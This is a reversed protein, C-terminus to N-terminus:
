RGTRSDVPRRLSRHADPTCLQVALGLTVTAGRISRLFAEDALWLRFFLILDEATIGPFGRLRALDRETLVDRTPM